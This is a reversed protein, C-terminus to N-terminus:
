LAAGILLLTVTTLMTAIAVPNLWPNVVQTSMLLNLVWNAYSLLCLAMMYPGILLVEGDLARWRPKKLLKGYRLAAEMYGRYWRARQTILGTLKSPTEQWFCIDDAYRVKCDNEVLKLAVEVDEALSDPWGGLRMLIRRRVFQCSGTLPIFLNLKERGKLLGQFWAGRERAAVKTLINEDRNLSCTRGQVAAVSPDQFYSAIRRLVDRKPVSDADFVGVIEGTTSHLGLNLATPKGRSTNEHVVRIIDPHKKSFEVCIDKTADKSGGEVVIIEMKTKPYDMDLLADLCRAIVAEEDKAPVILSIKPVKEDDIPNFVGGSKHRIGALVIPFQYITWSLIAVLSTVSVLLIAIM